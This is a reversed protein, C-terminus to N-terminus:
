QKRKREQFFPICNSLDVSFSDRTKLEKIQIKQQDLEEKGLIACFEADIKLANQLGHQLKYNGLEIQAEIGQHRCHCVLEFAKERAMEDLGVFYVFPGKTTTMEQRSALMVQLLREMGTACGVSALDPGGFTKLLGDYRGGAGVTAQSGLDKSVIEFVTHNYYDLGRVLSPDIRYSIGLHDLSRCVADFHKKAELSLFELISPAKELIQRDVPDKSDLIRLPNKEFRLKSDESLDKLHPTLFQLLAEKYHARSSPDGVSNILLSTSKLGVRRYLELLLDIVEVDQLFSGTGVAEIGFQHHQRYRGSQPREYRFMPGVYYLKHVGGRDLMHNEIMSRMVAATGEPRLSISRDGRDKFTFMEKTVIDSTEGASRDFLETSEYIPTRIELYGYDKTVQRIAEELEQWLSSLKWAEKTSYPLIDFTGKPAQIKQM